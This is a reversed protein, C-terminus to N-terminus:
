EDDQEDKDGQESPTFTMPKGSHQCAMCAICLEGGDEMLLEFQQEEGCRPCKLDPLLDRPVLARVEDPWRLLGRRLLAWVTSEVVPRRGREPPRDRVEPWILRVIASVYRGPQIM